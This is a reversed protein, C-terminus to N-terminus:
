SPGAPPAGNFPYRGAALAREAIARQPGVADFQLLPAAAIRQLLAANGGGGGVRRLIRGARDILRPLAAQLYLRVATLCLAPCGRKIARLLGSEAAYTAILMDALWAALEQEEGNAAGARLMAGAALRVLQRCIEVAAAAEGAPDGAPVGLARDLAPLEAALPLGRRGALKFLSGAVLLRNIENTGEFIRNVRSDRYLRQVPGEGTFGYGGHIQLLEDVSWDLAESAFVKAAACELALEAILVTVAPGGCAGDRDWGALRDALAAALRYALSESLYTRIVM